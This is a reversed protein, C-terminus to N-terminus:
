RSSDAEVTLRYVVAMGLNFHQKQEVRLGLKKFSAELKPLSFDKVHVGHWVRGRFKEWVGFILRFLWNGSDVEIIMTGRTKVVRKIEAIAQNIDRLHEIVETCIVVDFARDKFPLSHADAVKLSLGPYLKQGYEVAEGYLDVGTIKAERRAKSIEHPFWGSNCGVDLITEPNRPLLNSVAEIKGAHWLMQLWNQRQYYDVPVQKLVRELKADVQTAM